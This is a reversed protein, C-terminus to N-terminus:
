ERPFQKVDMHAERTAVRHGQLVWRVLARDVASPDEGTLHKWARTRSCEAHNPHKCKMAQAYYGWQELPRLEGIVIGDADRVERRMAMSYSVTNSYPVHQIGFVLGSAVARASLCGPFWLDPHARTTELADLLQITGQIRHQITGQISCADVPM